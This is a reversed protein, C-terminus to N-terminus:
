KMIKVLLEILLKGEDEGSSEVGKSRLDYYKLLGLIEEVKEKTYNSSAQRYESLGYDNRLGLVKSLEFDPKGSNEIYLLIKIFYTNLNAISLIIPNKREDSAFYHAIQIAKNFQKLGVAKQLEFVNYDKSIGINEEIHKLTIVAADGINILMKDIENAVKSLNNGLYETILLNAKGDINKGKSRIYGEVWNPVHYDRIPDSNFLCFKKALKALKKRGDLKKSKLALCLVTSSTSNEFYNALGEIDKMAQAEKVIILQHQAPPMPYRKAAMSVSMANADKGYVITQNFSKDAESLVNKELAEVIKDIYYTEDGQLVYIPHFTKENIEKIISEFTPKSMKTKRNDLYKVFEIEFWKSIRKFEFSACM